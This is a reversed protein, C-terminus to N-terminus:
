AAAINIIYHRMQEQFYGVCDQGRKQIHTWLCKVANTAAKYEKNKLKVGDKTHEIIMRKRKTTWESLKIQCMHMRACFDMAKRANPIKGLWVVVRQAGNYIDKM